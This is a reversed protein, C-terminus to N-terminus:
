DNQMKKLLIFNHIGDIEPEQIKVIKSLYMMMKVLLSFKTIKKRKYLNYSEFLNNNFSTIDILKLGLEHLEQFNKKSLWVKSGGAWTVNNEWFSGEPNNTTIFILGNDNLLQRVKDLIVFSDDFYYLCHNLSILDYKKVSSFNEDFYEHNNKKTVSDNITDEDSEVGYADVGLNNLQHVFHGFGSGVDLSTKFLFDTKNKLYKIYIESQIKSIYKAFYKRLFSKSSITPYVTEYERFAGHCNKCSFVQELSTVKWPSDKTNKFFYELQGSKKCIRCMKKDIGM